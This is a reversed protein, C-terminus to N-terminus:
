QRGVVYPKRPRPPSAHSADGVAFEGTLYPHMGQNKLDQLFQAFGDMDAMAPLATLTAGRHGAMDDVISQLVTVPAELFEALTMIRRRSRADPSQLTKIFRNEVQQLRAAEARVESASRGSRFLAVAWAGTVVWVSAQTDKTLM